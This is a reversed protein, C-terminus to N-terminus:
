GIHDGVFTCLMSGYRPHKGGDLVLRGRIFRIKAFKMILDHFWAADTATPLLMISTRGKKMQQMAKKIWAIKRSYPPNVFNVQHWEIALGDFDPVSPCPDFCKSFMDRYKKPSPCNDSDKMM